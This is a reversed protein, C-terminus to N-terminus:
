DQIQRKARYAFLWVAFAAVAAVTPSSVWPGQSVGRHHVTITFLSSVASVDQDSRQAKRLASFGEDDFFRIDYSGAPAQKHEATWSVQYRIGDASRSVPFQRDGIDAHLVLDQLSLVTSSFIRIFDPFLGNSSCFFLLVLSFLAFMKRLSAM